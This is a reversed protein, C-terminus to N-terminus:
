VFCNKQDIVKAEIKDNNKALKAMRVYFIM